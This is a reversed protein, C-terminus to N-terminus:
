VSPVNDATIYDAVLRKAEEKRVISPEGRNINPGVVLSRVTYIITPQDNTAKGRESKRKAEHPFQALERFNLRARVRRRLSDVVGTLDDSKVIIKTRLVAKQQIDIPRNGM